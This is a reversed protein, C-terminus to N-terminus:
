WQPLFSPGAAYSCLSTRLTIERSRAPFSCLWKARCPNQVTTTPLCMGPSRAGTKKRAPAEPTLNAVKRMASMSLAATVTGATTM